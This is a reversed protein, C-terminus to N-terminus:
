GGCATNYPCTADDCTFERTFYPNCQGCTNYACTLQGCMTPLCTNGDCTATHNPDGCWDTNCPNSCRDSIHAYITGHEQPEAALAFSEVELADVALRLKRMIVEAFPFRYPREEYYQEL